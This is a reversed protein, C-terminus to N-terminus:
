ERQYNREFGFDYRSTLINQYHTMNSFDTSKTISFENVRNHNEILPHVDVSLSTRQQSTKPEKRDYIKLITLKIQDIRDNPVRLFDNLSEYNNIIWEGLNVQGQSLFSIPYKEVIILNYNTSNIIM